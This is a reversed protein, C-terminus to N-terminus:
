KNIKQKVKSNRIIRPIKLDWVSFNRKRNKDSRKAKGFMETWEWIKKKKGNTSFFDSSLLHIVCKKFFKNTFWFIHWASLMKERGPRILLIKKKYFQTSFLLLKVMVCIFFFFVSRKSHHIPSLLIDHFFHCNAHRFTKKRRCTTRFEKGHLRVNGFSDLLVNQFCFPSSNGNQSNLEEMM